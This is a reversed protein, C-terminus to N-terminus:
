TETVVWADVECLHLVVGFHCEAVVASEDDLGLRFVKVLRPKQNLAGVCAHFPRLKRISFGTSANRAEGTGDLRTRIDAAHPWNTRLARSPRVFGMRPSGETLAKLVHCAFRSLPGAGLARLQSGQM